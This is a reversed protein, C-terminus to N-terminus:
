DHNDNRKNKYDLVTIEGEKELNALRMVQLNSDPSGCFERDTIMIRPGPQSMLWDIARGDVVNNGSDPKRIEAARYGNMAYIYLWGESYGGAYYAITAQPADVCWKKVNDWDGMSGSADVLITGGPVVPMRRLFPYQSPIPRMIASRIIRTGNRGVRWGDDAQDIAVSLPLEIIEMPPAKGFYGEPEYDPDSFGNERPMVPRPPAFLKELTQAVKRRNVVSSKSKGPDSSYKRRRKTKKNTLLRMLELAFDKQANDFDATAAATNWDGHLGILVAFARFRTAFEPWLKFGMNHPDKAIDERHKNALALEEDVYDITASKISKPTKSSGWYGPKWPWHNAHIWADETIQAYTDTVGKYAKAYEAPITHNAHMVEHVRKVTERPTHLAKVSGGDFETMAFDEDNEFHEPHGRSARVGAVLISHKEKWRM